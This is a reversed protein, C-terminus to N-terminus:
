ASVHFLWDAYHQCVVVRHNADANPVHEIFHVAEFNYTFGVIAIFGDRLGKLQSGVDQQKVDLHRAQRAKFGHAGDHTSRRGYFDQQERGGYRRLLDNFSKVDSRASDHELVREGSCQM